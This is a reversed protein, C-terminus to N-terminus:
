EALEFRSRLGELSNQKESVTSKLKFIEMLSKKLFCNKDRSINKVHHSMIM